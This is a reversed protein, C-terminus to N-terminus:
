LMLVQQPRASNRVERENVKQLAYAVLYIPQAQRYTGAADEANKRKREQESRNQRDRNEANAGSRGKDNSVQFLRQLKDSQTQNTQRAGYKLAHQILEAFNTLISEGEFKAEFFYDEGYKKITIAIFNAAAEEGWDNEEYDNIIEKV